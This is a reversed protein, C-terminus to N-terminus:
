CTFSRYMKEITNKWENRLEEPAIIEANERFSLVKGILEFSTNAPYPLIYECYEGKVPDIGTTTKQSDVWLMEKMREVLIGYFRIKAKRINSSSIIGFSDKFEPIDYNDKTFKSRTKFINSQMVAINYIRVKKLNDQRSSRVVYAMLYWVGNYHILKVPEATIDTDHYKFKILYEYRMADLIENIMNNYRTRQSKRYHETLHYEIKGALRIDKQSLEEKLIGEIIRLIHDYDRVLGKEDKNDRPPFYYESFIMSKVFSYFIMLEQRKSPTRKIREFRDTFNEERLATTESDGVSYKKEKVSYVINLGFHDRLQAISRKMTRDSPETHTNEKIYKYFGELTFYGNEYLQNILYAIRGITNKESM